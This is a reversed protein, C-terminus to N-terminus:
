WIAVAICPVLVVGGGGRRRRSCQLAPQQQTWQGASWQVFSRVHLSSLTPQLPTAPTNPVPPAFPAATPELGSSKLPPRYPEAAAAIAGSPRYESASPTM